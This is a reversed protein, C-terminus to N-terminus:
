DPLHDWIFGHFARWSKAVNANELISYSFNRFDFLCIINNVIAVAAYYAYKDPIYKVEAFPLNFRKVIYPQDDISAEGKPKSSKPLICKMCINIQNEPPEFDLFFDHHSSIQKFSNGLVYITNDTEEMQSLLQYLRNYYQKAREIGYYYESISRSTVISFQRDIKPFAEDLLRKKHDLMNKLVKPDAPLYLTRKGRSVASLLSLRMLTDIHYYMGTREVGANHAIQTVTGQGLDLASLYILAETKSLGLEILAKYDHSIDFSKM